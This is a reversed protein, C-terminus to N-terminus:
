QIPPLINPVILQIKKKNKLLTSKQVLNIGDNIKEDQLMIELNNLMDTVEKLLNESVKNNTLEQKYTSNIQKVTKLMDKIKDKTANINNNKNKLKM